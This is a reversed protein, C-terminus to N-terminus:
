ITIVPRELLKSNFYIDNLKKFNRQLEDIARQQSRKFCQNKNIKHPTECTRYRCGAGFAIIKYPFIM